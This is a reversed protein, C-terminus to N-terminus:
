LETPYNYYASLREYKKDGAIQVNIEKDLAATFDEILAMRLIHVDLKLYHAAAVLKKVPIACLGREINSLYQGNKYGLLSSLENQSMNRAIRARKILESTKTGQLIM